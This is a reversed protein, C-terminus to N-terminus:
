FNIYKDYLKKVDKAALVGQTQLMDIIDAMENSSQISINGGEMSSALLHLRSVMDDLNMFGTGSM